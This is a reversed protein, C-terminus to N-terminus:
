LSIIAVAVMCILTMVFSASTVVLFKWREKAMKKSLDAIQEQFKKTERAVVFQEFKDLEKQLFPNM